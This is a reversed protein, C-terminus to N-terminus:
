RPIDELVVWFTSGGGSTEEEWARGGFGRAIKQVTALGIGTGPVNKGASGRYFVEFIHDREELPIGPGHDRVYFFVQNGKREGGIEIKGGPSCGYRLANGILNHFIETLLTAPVHLSPLDKIRLVAKAQLIQENLGTVAESVVQRANVAVAPREIEGVKALRLLDEMLALMKNGSTSIQALSSLTEKEMRDEGTKLLYDSYGIIPTIHNRLDHCLTYVFSDLEQYAEQLKRQNIKQNRREALSLFALGLLLLLSFGTLSILILRSIRLPRFAEVLDTETAIGLSLDTAGIWAGIVPAGRYDRYGELDLGDKGQIASQAMRTLPQQDRPLPSSEGALLNVGPDRIQIRLLSSQGAKLLGIRQLQGEFRSENLLRGQRDFAYTEGTRGFRGRVFIASFEQGPDIRLLLYALIEGADGYIPAGTFIVPTREFSGDELPVNYFTPLTILTQGEELQEQLAEHGAIPSLAGIEMDRFASLTINDPAVLFYGRYDQRRVTPAVFSRLKEQVPAEVLSPRNRPHSLLDRTMQVIEPSTALLRIDTRKERVWALLTKHAMDCIATLSHGIEEKIDQEVHSIAGLSAGILLLAIVATSLSLSCPALRKLLREKPSM